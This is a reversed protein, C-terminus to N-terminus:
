FHLLSSFLINVVLFHYLIFIRLSIKNLSKKINLVKKRRGNKKRKELMYRKFEATFRIQHNTVSLTYPNMALQMKEEDTFYRITKEM